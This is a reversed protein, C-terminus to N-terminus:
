IVLTLRIYNCPYPVDLTCDILVTDPANEDQILNNLSGGILVGSETLFTLLGQGVHGLSDIFGQTVNFRGIFNRYGRRMVKSTFDVVKTISDTRTEVSTMDTTLAHRAVLPSNETDQIVIWNGGAAMINLQKETFSDNSGYIRTFGALPFNTFSQQPANGAILGAYGAPVYYGELVQEVGSLSAACKDPVIHWFRRNGFTQAYQQLTTAIGTRDPKGTPLTLAAGRIKVAFTEDILPTGSPPFQDPSQAYFGDDNDGGTFTLRLTIVSGAVSEVSYHKADSAIDLFVGYKTDITGVPNPVGAALLLTALNPIGTDFIATGLSNGTNGSAVLTDLRSTPMLTNFLCIREGKNEPLSMASVHANFIEAVSKDHTLPAIAYVEVGELFEAARAFAEVTGEPMDPTAEDVGLAAIQAGPCNLLAFYCGLALPNEATVPSLADTVETTTNFKLLGPKVASPSVDKRLAKYMMYVYSKAATSPVGATNRLLDHALVPTQSDIQLEPVPRDSAGTLNKAIVYFNTGLQPHYTGATLGLVSNATGAGLTFPGSGIKAIKLYKASGVETVTFSFGSYAATLISVLASIDAPALATAFTYTTGDLIFTKDPTHFATPFTVGVLDVTGQTQAPVAMVVQKTLRLRSTVGGPAVQNVYGYSKGEVFLEDGAQVPFAVGDTPSLTTTGPSLGLTSNATGAGVIISGVTKKTFVLHNSGNASVTFDTFTTNLESLLDVQSVPQGSAFTHTVSNVVVTLTELDDPYTLGSVDVSGTITPTLGLVEVATGGVVEIYSDQGKDNATIRLYNSGDKDFLFDEFFDNLQALMETASTLPYATTNVFTYTQSPRNGRLTLTKGVLATPYSLGTIAVHGVLVAATAAATFDEGPMDVFPTMADGNGDDYAYVYDGRRCFAQKRQLERINTSSTAFFVRITSTDITVESLNNRPNPFAAPHVRMWDGTYMDEGAFVWGPKLNFASWVEVATSASIVVKELEGSGITRLTWSREILSGDLAYEQKVEALLGYVAAVNLANNIATVVAAPTLYAEDFTVTVDPSNDVSLILSKGNLGTYVYRIGSLVANKATFFVPLSVKADENLASGNLIEVIQKCAGVVCPVLTPTVVSPSVTRFQQIVEVGPRPLEAAM